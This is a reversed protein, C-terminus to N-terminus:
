LGPLRIAPNLGRYDFHKLAHGKITAAFEVLLTAQLPGLGPYFEKEM